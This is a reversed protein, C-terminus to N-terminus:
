QRTQPSAGSSAGCLRGEGYLSGSRLPADHVGHVGVVHKSVSAIVRMDDPTTGLDEGTGYAGDLTNLLEGFRLLLSRRDGGSLPGPIALVAKGGGFALELAAWKYTMGKALRM